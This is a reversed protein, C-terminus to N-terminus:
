YFDTTFILSENNNTVIHITDELLELAEFIDVRYFEKVIDEIDDKRISVIVKDRDPVVPDYCTTIVTQYDAKECLTSMICFLFSSEKKTFQNATKM